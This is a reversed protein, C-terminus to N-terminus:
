REGQLQFDRPNDQDFSGDPSMNPNARDAGYVYSGGRDYATQANASSAAVVAGTIAAIAIFAHIINRM